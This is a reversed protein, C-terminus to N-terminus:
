LPSTLRTCVKEVMMDRHFKKGLILIIESRHKYTDTNTHTQTQIHRHKYTETNTHTQTQIHRHKNTDTNTHTQTQIHRHKYIDTGQQNEIDTSICERGNVKNDSM